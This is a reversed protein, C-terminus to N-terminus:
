IITGAVSETYAHKLYAIGFKEFFEDRPINYSDITPVLQRGKVRDIMEQSPEWRLGAVDFLGKLQYSMQRLWMTKQEEFGMSQYEAYHESATQLLLERVAKLEGLTTVFRGDVEVQFHTLTDIFSGSSLMQAAVFTPEIKMGTYISYVVIKNFPFTKQPWLEHPNLDGFWRVLMIAGDGYEKSADYPGYVDYSLDPCFDNYLGHALTGCGTIIKGMEQARTRDGHVLHHGEIIADVDAYTNIKNNLWLPEGLTRARVAALFFDSIARVKEVPISTLHFCYTLEVFKFKMSMHNPLQDIVEEPRIGKEQILKIAKYVKEVWLEAFLPYFNWGNFPLHANVDHHQLSQYVADGFEEIWTTNNQQM